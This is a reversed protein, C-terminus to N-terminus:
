RRWLARIAQHGLYALTTGSGDCLAARFLHEVVTRSPGPMWARQSVRLLTGATARRIRAARNAGLPNELDIGLQERLVGTAFQFVNGLGHRRAREAAITVNLSPTRLLLMKVDYLWALREFLHTAAHALLYILEDEGRLVRYERGNPAQYAIARDLFESSPLLAGFSALLHFHLEVLLGDAGHLQVHHLHKRPGRRLALPDVQYDAAVLATIASELQEPAVLLDLDSSVRLSADGYLREGLIPGKLPVAAIGAGELIDLIETLNHRLRTQLLRQLVAARELDRWTESPIRGIVAGLASYIIGSLGHLGICDVFQRWDNIGECIAALEGPDGPIRSLLAELSHNRTQRTSM